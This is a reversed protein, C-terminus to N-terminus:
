YTDRVEDASAMNHRDKTLRVRSGYATGTVEFAEGEKTGYVREITEVRSLFVVVVSVNDASGRMLAESVLRKAALTPDKVTDYVLGVAEQASVVDWLGDTGVIVFHDDPQLELSTIEPLATVGAAATTAAAGGKVDYDGICRTVQLGSAGIRWSGHQWTVATGAVALRRREDELLGTHDRSAAMARRGRCVVARCDGANAVVLRGGPALLVALATTGPYRCVGTAATGAASSSSSSGGAPRQLLRQQQQRQWHVHYEAELRLFTDRLAAAPSVCQLAASWFLEALRTRCFEAADAGRHGDFLAVLPLMTAPVAATPRNYGGGAAAAAPVPVHPLLVCRDEMADRPGIAEFMGANFIRGVAAATAAAEALAVAEAQLAAALCTSGNLGNAHGNAGNAYDNIAVADDSEASCLVFPPLVVQQQQQQQQQLYPVAAVTASAHVAIVSNKNIQNNDGCSTGRATESSRCGGDDVARVDITETGGVATATIMVQSFGPREGPERRWCAGMLEGWAPPCPRPLLPRLGEACVAAALEMRGYGMELVTHVEPNDKTCDSFPVV